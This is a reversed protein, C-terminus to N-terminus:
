ARLRLAHHGRWIVVGALVSKLLDQGLFPVTGLQAARLPDGTLVSLQAWGGLHLVLLGAVAALISRVLRGREALRGVVAAAVPMALLFGGTPGFLRALGSPGIPAFVPAGAAGAVLYFVLAGAGAAAGFLGGVLVVALPQLTMPVPSFPVPIAVQASLAVLVAGLALSFPWALPIRRRARTAPIRAPDQVGITGSSRRPSPATM